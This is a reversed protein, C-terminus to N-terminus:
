EIKMGATNYRQGDKVIVLRGNVLCKQHSVSSSTRPAVIGDTIAEGAELKICDYM